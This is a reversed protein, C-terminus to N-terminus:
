KKMERLGNEKLFSQWFTRRNENLLEPFYKKAVEFNERALLRRTEPRQLEIMQTALGKVDGPKHRWDASVLEDSGGAESALAPTARSLAEILARPLGEQFSTQIYADVTDIWSFLREGHPLVGMFKVRDGVGLKNALERLGSTDGAGVVELKLAPSSQIALALAKIAIDVRKENHFMAAIMGFTLSTKNNAISALRRDLIASDHPAIEVDSIGMQHGTTPYRNQLFHQTVYLAWQSKSVSRRMRAYAVPAYLRAVLSGHSLLGDWVCAVVEVLLPKNHRRAIDAAMMGIESPLRVVVVDVAMIAQALKAVAKQDKILLSRLSSLNPISVFRSSDPQLLNLRGALAATYPQERGAIYLDGFASEYRAMIDGSYQGTSYVRGEHDRVFRHDHVFLVSM